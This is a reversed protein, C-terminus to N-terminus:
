KIEINYRVKDEWELSPGKLLARFEITHKGIPLPELMIWYGDSVATTNGKNGLVSNEPLTVSFAKSPIRYKLVDKIENGNVWLEAQPNSSEDEHACLRLEEITKVDYEMFSCEVVNVPVLISKNAPITCDRNVEVLGQGDGFSLFFVPLSEDQNISCFQGTRDGIPSIDAPISLLWQWFKITWDEFSIGYPAADKSYVGPNLEDSHVSKFTTGTSIMTVIIFTILFLKPYSFKILNCILEM